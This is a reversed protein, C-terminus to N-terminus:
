GTWAVPPCNWPFLRVEQLSGSVASTSELCVWESRREINIWVSVRLLCNSGGGGKSWAKGILMLFITVNDNIM